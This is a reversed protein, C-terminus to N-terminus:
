PIKVEPPAGEDFFLWGVSTGFHEALKVKTEDKPKRRNQEYLSYLSQSIGTADAVEQTTEARQERMFRLRKGIDATM